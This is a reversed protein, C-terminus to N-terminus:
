LRNCTNTSLMSLIGMHKYIHMNHHCTVRGMSCKWRGTVKKKKNPIIVDQFNGSCQKQRRGCVSERKMQSRGHVSAIKQNIWSYFSHRKQGKVNYMTLHLSILVYKQIVCFGEATNEMLNLYNYSPQM